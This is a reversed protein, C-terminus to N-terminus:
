LSKELDKLFLLFLKVQVNLSNLCVVFIRDRIGCWLKGAVLSMVSIPDTNEENDLQGTKDESKTSNEEISQIIPSDL